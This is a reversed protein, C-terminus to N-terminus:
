CLLASNRVAVRLQKTSAIFEKAILLLVAVTAIKQACGQITSTFSFVSESPAVLKNVM